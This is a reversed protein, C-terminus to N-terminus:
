KGTFKAPRKELFARTGEKMDETSCCCGFLGAELAEGQKGPMEMGRHIAELAYNVAVPAQAALKGAAAEAVAMLDAPSVVQNALGIRWAEQASIPEGSLIMELARGKGILRPLRQSGGYGPILGLKIEPQGFRASESAIRLTCAMALECGGGLAVGNVAAVVPKGLNEIVNMLQQGRLAAERALVPTLLALEKIDAGAAFSKEGSGTLVAARIEQTRGIESFCETLEEISRRNLANLKEPRNLTVHALNGRVEYLITEYNM